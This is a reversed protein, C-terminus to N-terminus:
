TADRCTGHVKKTDRRIDSDSVNSPDFQLHLPLGRPGADPANRFKPIVESASLDLIELRLVESNASM